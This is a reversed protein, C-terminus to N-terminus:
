NFVAVREFIREDFVIIRKEMDISLILGEIVAVSCTSEATKITYVDASGYQMIDILSGLKDGSMYIDLGLMDVIYFQDEELKPLEERSTTITKNRFFEAKEISDIGELRCYGFVGEVSIKTVTYEINDIKLNKISKFRQPNNTYTEFKLEGKLGRPKLIKAIQLESSM